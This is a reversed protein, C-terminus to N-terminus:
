KEGSRKKVPIYIDMEINETGHCREDYLEFEVVGNHEYDSQPFWETFIYNWTSQISSTFSEENAKPTTFVAYELEPFSKYVMGEPTKTGKEVEMGIVYVFEGTGPNFETCIGLEVHKHLPNPITCGLKNKLYHQWFEPIDKNNQGDANKTKLEYGIIHFAPKTVFKPEMKHGGLWLKKGLCAKGRLPSSIRKANRYQRPSVGYIKKFARNFSEQYQFGVEIAITIVKEDTYFLREAACILRRKRIYDMVSEGVIAQFVRHYHFPSFCAIKALQELTMQEQLNEEIYDLTRQICVVYDM